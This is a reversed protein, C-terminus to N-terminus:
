HNTNEIYDKLEQAVGREALISEIDGFGEFGRKLWGSELMTLDTLYNELANITIQREKNTINLKM